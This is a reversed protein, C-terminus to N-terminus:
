GRTDKGITSNLLETLISLWSLMSILPIYNYSRLIKKIKNKM